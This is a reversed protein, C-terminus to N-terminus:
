SEPPSKDGQTKSSIRTIRAVCWETSHAPGCFYVPATLEKFLVPNAWYLTQGKEDRRFSPDLPGKGCVECRITGGIM